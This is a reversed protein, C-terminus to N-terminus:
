IDGRKRIEFLLKMLKESKDLEIYAILEKFEEETEFWIKKLIFGNRKNTKNIPKKDACEECLYKNCDSTAYDDSDINIM